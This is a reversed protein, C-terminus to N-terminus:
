GRKLVEFFSLLFKPLSLAGYDKYRLSCPANCWLIETCHVKSTNNGNNEVFIVVAIRSTLNKRFFSLYFQFIDENDVHEPM